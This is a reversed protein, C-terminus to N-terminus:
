RKKISWSEKMGAYYSALRKDRELRAQSAEALARAHSYANPVKTRDAMDEVNAWHVMLAEAYEMQVRAQVADLSYREVLEEANASVVSTASTGSRDTVIGAMKIPSSDQSFAIATILFFLLVLSFSRM